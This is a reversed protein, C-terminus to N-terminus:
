GRMSQEHIMENVHDSLRRMSSTIISPSALLVKLKDLLETASSASVVINHSALNLFGEDLAKEFLTLIADYYGNVNLLGVQAIEYLSHGGRRTIIDRM